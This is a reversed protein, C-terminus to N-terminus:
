KYMKLHTDRQNCFKRLFPFTRDSVRNVVGTPHDYDSWNVTRVRNAITTYDFTKITNSQKHQNYQQNLLKHWTVQDFKQDKRKVNFSSILYLLFHVLFIFWILLVLQIFLSIELLKSNYFM